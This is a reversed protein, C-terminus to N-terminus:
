SSKMVGCDRVLDSKKKKVGEKEEIINVNVKTLSKSARNCQQEVNAKMLSRDARKEVGQERCRCEVKILSDGARLKEKQNKQGL